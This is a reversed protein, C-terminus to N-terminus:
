PTVASGGGTQALGAGGASGGRSRSDRADMKEVASHEGEVEVIVAKASAITARFRRPQGIARVWIREGVAGASEAVVPLRLRLGQGRVEAELRAGAAVDRTRVLDDLRIPAGAAVARRLRWGSVRDLQPRLSAPLVVPCSREVVAEKSIRTGAVLPTAAVLCERQAHLRVRAWVPYSRGSGTKLLGRWLVVQNPAVAALSLVANKAFVLEGKPLPYRSYDVLEVAIAEGALAQELAAQVSRGDLPAAKGVVCVGQPPLADSAAADIGLRGMLGALELVSIRRRVGPLPAAVLPADGASSFAPIAPALDSALIKEGEVVLCPAGTTAALAALLTAM